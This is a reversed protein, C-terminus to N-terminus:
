TKTKPVSEDDAIDTISESKSLITSISPASPQLSYCVRLNNTRTVGKNSTSESEDDYRRARTKNCSPAFPSIFKRTYQDKKNVKSKSREKKEDIDIEESDSPPHITSAKDIRVTSTTIPSQHKTLLPDPETTSNEDINHEEHELIAIPISPIIGNISAHVINNPSVTDIRTTLHSVPAQHVIPFFTTLKRQKQINNKVKLTENVRFLDCVM